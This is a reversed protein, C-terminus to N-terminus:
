LLLSHKLKGKNLPVNYWFRIRTGGFGRGTPHRRQLMMHSSRSGTIIHAALKCEPM